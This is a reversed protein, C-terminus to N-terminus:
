SKLNWLLRSLEFKMIVVSCCNISYTIRFLNSQHSCKLHKVTDSHSPKSKSGGQIHLVFLLLPRVARTDEKIWAALLSVFKLLRTPEFPLHSYLQADL